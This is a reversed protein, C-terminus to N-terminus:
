ETPESAPEDAVAKRTIVRAPAEQKAATDAKRAAKAAKAAEDAAQIAAVQEKHNVYLEPASAAYYEILDLFGDGSTGRWEGAPVTIFRSHKALSVKFTVDGDDNVHITRRACEAPDLDGLDAEQDFSALEMVLDNWQDGRIAMKASGRKTGSTGIPPVSFTTTMSALGEVSNNFCITSSEAVVLAFKKSVSKAFVSVSM